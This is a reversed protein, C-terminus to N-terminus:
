KANQFYSMLLHHTQSKIVILETPNRESWSIKEYFKLKKNKRDIIFCVMTSGSKIPVADFLGLSFFNLGKSLIYQDTQNKDTRIFGQEFICLGFDQNASDLIQLLIAPIKEIRVPQQQGIARKIIYIYAETIEKLQAETAAFLRNTISDPINIKLQNAIEGGVKNSLITDIEIKNGKKVVGINTIVPLILLSNVQAPIPKTVNCSVLLALGLINKLNFASRM